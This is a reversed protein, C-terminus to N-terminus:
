TGARDLVTRLEHFDVPKTLHFDFGAEKGRRIDEDSGFGTLAVGLVPHKRKAESIVEYGTGDPLGIDSLVVDFEETDVILLASKRCDAVSIQHGFYTLLRSLTRRTDDHDEVLLIRLSRPSAPETRLAPAALQGSTVALTVRFTSGHSRGPSSAEIQGDHLDLLIKSIALGLGLGGFQRPVTRDGQEFPKFLMKRQEAQLGIGSDTVELVFRGAEDHGTSIEISGGSPTFKVANNIVNWFVQQMRIPDAWIHHAKANLETKVELRKEDIDAQVISLAQRVIEHADVRSFHLDIKGRVMRTLDLLDDILRAELQINRRITDVEGLFEPPLRSANHALFSAAALAPTLPTRLEHSLAALFHDKAESVKEAAMRAAELERSRMQDTIDRTVKSFGQLKGAEDRLPTLVVDAHFTTGDKRVRLGQAHVQGLQVADQLNRQPIGAAIDAETYFCSFNQGIIEGARYQKIREAGSNWTAVYGRVDLMYIAYEGVSEVLQRFQQENRHLRTEREKQETLDRTVKAFGILKGAADHKATIVVSAWFRMGDKRVRWGEVQICGKAAAEELQAKPKTSKEQDMFFCSFNQGIIEEAAYGKIRHAGANWSVVKGEADLIFIAYDSISEVLVRFREQAPSLSQAAAEESM